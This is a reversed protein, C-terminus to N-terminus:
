FFFISAHKIFKVPELGEGILKLTNPRNIQGYKPVFMWVLSYASEM